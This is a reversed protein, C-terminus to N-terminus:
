EQRGPSQSTRQCYDSGFRQTATQTNRKVFSRVLSFKITVKLSLLVLNEVRPTRDDILCVWVLPNFDNRIQRSIKKSLRCIWDWRNWYCRPSLFNPRSIGWKKKSLTIIYCLYVYTGIFYKQQTKGKFSSIHAYLQNLIKATDYLDGRHWQCLPSIRQNAQPSRQPTLENIKSYRRSYSAM